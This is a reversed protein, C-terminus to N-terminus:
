TQFKGVFGYVGVQGLIFGFRLFVLISFINLSTPIFVGTFTGMKAPQKDDKSKDKSDAM